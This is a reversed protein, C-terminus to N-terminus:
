QNNNQNTNDNNSRTRQTVLEVLRQLSTAISPRERLPMFCTEYNDEYKKRWYKTYPCLSDEDPKAYIQAWKALRTWKISIMLQRLAHAERVLETDHPDRSLHRELRSLFRQTEMETLNDHSISGFAAVDDQTLMVNQDREDTAHPNFERAKRLCRPHEHITTSTDDYNLDANISTREHRNPPPDASPLTPITTQLSRTPFM